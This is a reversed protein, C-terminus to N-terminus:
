VLRGAALEGIENDAYTLSKVYVRCDTQVVHGLQQLIGQLVNDLSRDDMGNDALCLTVIEDSPFEKDM